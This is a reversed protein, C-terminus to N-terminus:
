LKVDIKTFENSYFVSTRLIIILNSNSKHIAHKRIMCMHLDSVWKFMVGALCKVLFPYFFIYSKQMVALSRLCM